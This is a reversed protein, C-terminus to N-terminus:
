IKVIDEMTPIMSLIAQHLGIITKADTIVGNDIMDIVQKTPVKHFTCFEGDGDFKADEVKKPDITLYVYIREDTFGPSSDYHILKEIHGCEYGTEEKLERKACDESSEGDNLHGAPVEWIEQHLAPRWQKILGFSDEDSFYVVVASASKKTVIQNFNGKKNTEREIVSFIKAKYLEKEM